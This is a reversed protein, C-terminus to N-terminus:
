KAEYELKFNTYGNLAEYIRVLGESSIDTTMYVVQEDGTSNNEVNHNGDYKITDDNNRFLGFIIVNAIVFIVVIILSVVIKKKM